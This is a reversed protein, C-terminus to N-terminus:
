HGFVVYVYKMTVFKGSSQMCQYVKVKSRQFIAQGVKYSSSELGGSGDKSDRSGSGAGGSGGSRQYTPRASPLNNTFEELGSNDHHDPRDPPRVHVDQTEIRLPPPPLTNQPQPPKTQCACIGM